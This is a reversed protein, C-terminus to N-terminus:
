EGKGLSKPWLKPVPTSKTISSKFKSMNSQLPLHLRVISFLLEHTPKFYSRLPLKQAQCKEVYYYGENGEIAVLDDM